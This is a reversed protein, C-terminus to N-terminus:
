RLAFAAVDVTPASIVNALQAYRLVTLVTHLWYCHCATFVRQTLCNRLDCAAYFMWDCQGFVILDVSPATIIIILERRLSYAIEDFLGDVYLLKLIRFNKFKGTSGVM